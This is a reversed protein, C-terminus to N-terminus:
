RKKTTERRTSKHEWISRVTGGELVTSEVRVKVDSSNMVKMQKANRKLAYPKREALIAVVLRNPTEWSKSLLM